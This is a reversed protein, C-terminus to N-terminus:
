RRGVPRLRQRGPRTLGSASRPEPSREVVSLGAQQVIDDLLAANRGLAEYLEDATASPLTERGDILVSAIGALVTCPTRLASLLQAVPTPRPMTSRWPWRSWGTPRSPAPRRAAVFDPLAADLATVVDDFDGKEVYAVAGAELAPGALHTASFGSLAIIKTAPAAALIGPIATLGDGGPMAM